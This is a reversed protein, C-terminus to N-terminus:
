TGAAERTPTRSAKMEATLLRITKGAGGIPNEPLVLFVPRWEGPHPEELRVGVVLGSRLDSDLGLKFAVVDGVHFPLEAQTLSPEYGRPTWTPFTPTKIPKVSLREAQVSDEGDISALLEAMATWGMRIGVWAFPLSALMISAAVLLAIGEGLEYVLDHRFVSLLVASVVPVFAMFIGFVLRFATM